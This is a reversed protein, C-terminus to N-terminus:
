KYNISLFFLIWLIFNSVTSSKLTGNKIQNNRNQLYESSFVSISNIIFFVIFIWFYINALLPIFYELTYKNM